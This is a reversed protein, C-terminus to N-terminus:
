RATVARCPASVVAPDVWSPPAPLRVRVPGSTFRRITVGGVAGVVVTHPEWVTAPVLVATRWEDGMVVLDGARFERAAVDCPWLAGALEYHARFGRALRGYQGNAHDALGHVGLLVDFAPLYRAAGFGSRALLPALSQVNTLVLSPRRVAAARLVAAAEAYPPSVVEFERLAAPVLLAVAAGLTSWAALAAARAAGRTWAAAVPGSLAAVAAVYLAPMPGSLALALSLALAAATPAWRAAPALVARGAFATAAAVGPLAISLYRPIIEPGELGLFPSVTFALLLLASVAAVARVSGGRRFAAPTFLLSWAGSVLALAAAIRRVAAASVAPLFAAALGPAPIAHMPPHALFWLPARHYMAGAPLYLLPCVVAGVVAERRGPRLLAALLLAAVFAAFEYRAWVTLGLVVGSVFRQRRGEGEYLWLGVALLALGDANSQGTAASFAYAPSGAFTLAALWGDGGLREAWRGIALVGLAAVLVHAVAFGKWGLAATPLYLLSLTPHLKQFFLSAAFDDAALQAGLYTLRGEDSDVRGSLALALVAVGFVAAILAVPDRRAPSMM